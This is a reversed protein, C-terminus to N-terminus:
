SKVIHKCVGEPPTLISVHWGVDRHVSGRALCHADVKSSRGEHFFHVEQFGMAMTKLEFVIHGYSGMGGGDISRIANLCDSAVKIRQLILDVGFGFRV